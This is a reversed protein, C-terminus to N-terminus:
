GHDLDIDVFSFLIAFRKYGRATSEAVGKSAEELVANIEESEDILSWSEPSHAEIEGDLEDNTEEQSTLIDGLAEQLAACPLSPPM